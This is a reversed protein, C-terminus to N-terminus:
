PLTLTAGDAATKEYTRGKFEYIVNLHKTVGPLPDGFIRVNVPVSLTDNQLYPRLKERVDAIDNGAGYRAYFIRLGPAAGLPPISGSATPAKSITSAAAPTPTGAAETLPPKTIAVPKANSAPLNLTAGEKASVEYGAGTYEYRVTLSKTKGVAPDVGLVKNDAKVSVKADRVLAQVQQTVDAQRDGAGWKAEIIRLVAPAAAAAPQVPAPSAPQSAPAPAPAPQAPRNGFLDGISFGGTAPTATPTPAGPAPSPEVLPPLTLTSFDGAFADAERGNYRYRVMLTKGVGPAPDSGLTSTDVRLSLKNGAALGRVRDTVDLWTNGAGYRATLIELQQAAASVAALMALMLIRTRM